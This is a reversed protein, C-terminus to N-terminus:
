ILLLTLGVLAYRLCESTRWANSTKSGIWASLPWMVTMGLMWLADPTVFYMPLYFAGYILGRKALALYDRWSSHGDTINGIANAAPSPKEALWGLLAFLPLWYWNVSLLLGFVLGILPSFLGSKWNGGSLYGLPILSLVLLIKIYIPIM